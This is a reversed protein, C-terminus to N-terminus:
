GGVGTGFTRPELLASGHQQLTLPPLFHLLVFNYIYDVEVGLDDLGGTCPGSTDPQENVCRVNPSWGVTGSIVFTQTASNYTYTNVDSSGDPLGTLPAARYIMVKQISNLHDGGLASSLATLIEGDANSDVGAASGARVADTLAQDYALHTKFAMGFEMVSLILLLFLPLVLAFEAMSQGQQTRRRSMLSISQQGGRPPRGFM